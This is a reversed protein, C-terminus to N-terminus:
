KPEFGRATLRTARLDVGQGLGARQAGDAVLKSAEPGKRRTIDRQAALQSIRYLISEAIKQRAPMGRLALGRRDGAALIQERLGIAQARTPEQAQNATTWILIFYMAMVDALNTRKLGHPSALVDFTSTAPEERLHAEIARAGDNGISRAVNDLYEREVQRSIAPDYRVRWDAADPINKAGLESAAPRKTRTARAGRQEAISSELISQTLAISGYDPVAFAMNDSAISVGDQAAAVGSALMLGFCALLVALIKKSM